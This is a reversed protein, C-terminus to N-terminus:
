AHSAEQPGPRYKARLLEKVLPWILEDMLVEPLQSDVDEIEVMQQHQPLLGIYVKQLDTVQQVTNWVKNTQHTESTRAQARELLVEPNGTLLFILDPTPGQLIQWADHFLPHTARQTSYVQGSFVYRDALIIEGARLGPVINDQVNQLHDALFLCDMVSYAMNQTGITEFLIRRLEVGLPTAGPEKVLKIVFPSLNQDVLWKAIRKRLMEILVTKGCGDIGEFVVLLGYRSWDGPESQVQPIFTPTLM